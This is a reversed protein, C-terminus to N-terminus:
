ALRPFSLPASEKATPLRRAIMEMKKPRKKAAVDCQRAFPSTRRLAPPKGPAHKGRCVLSHQFFCRFARRSESKEPDQSTSANKSGGETMRDLGSRRTWRQVRGGVQHSLPGQPNESSTRDTECARDGPAEKRPAGHEAPPR